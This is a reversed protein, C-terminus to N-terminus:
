EAAARQEGVGKAIRDGITKDIDRWYDFTREQNHLFAAAL